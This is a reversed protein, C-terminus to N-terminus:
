APTITLEISGDDLQTFVVAYEHDQGYKKENFHDSECRMTYVGGDGELMSHPDLKIDKLTVEELLLHKAKLYEPDKSQWFQKSAKLIGRDM